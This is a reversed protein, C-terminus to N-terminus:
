LKKEIWSQYKDIESQLDDIVTKDCNSKKANELIRTLDNKLEELLFSLVILDQSNMNETEM